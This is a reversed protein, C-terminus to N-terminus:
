WQPKKNNLYQEIGKKSDDTMHSLAQLNAAYDLADAVSMGQIRFLLEKLLGIATPSTESIISDIFEQVIKNMETEPIVLNVLGIQLAEDASIKKRTLFLERLKNDSIRKSLFYITAAPLLGYSIDPFEFQATERSAFIIDSAAVIGCGLSRVSGHVRSIIPKRLTYMQMLLKTYDNCETQNQSFDYKLYRSLHASHIGSYWQENQSTLLVVKVSIDKQAYNLAQSLENSLTSLPVQSEDDPLEIVAQRKAVSYKIATLQM